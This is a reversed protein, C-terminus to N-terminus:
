YLCVIWRRAAAVPSVADDGIASSGAGFNDGFGTNSAKIYAIQAIQTGPEAGPTTNPESGAGASDNMAPAATEDAPGTCAAALAFGLTLLLSLTKTTMDTRHNRM